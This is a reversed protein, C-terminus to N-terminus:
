EVEGQIVTAPNISKMWDFIDYPDEMTEDWRQFGNTHCHEIGLEAGRLLGRQYELKAIHQLAEKVDSTYHGEYPDLIANLYGLVDAVTKCEELTTCNTFPNM